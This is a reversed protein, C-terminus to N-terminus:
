FTRYILYDMVKLPLPLLQTQFFLNDSINRRVVVRSYHQLKQPQSRYSKHWEKFSPLALTPNQAYEQELMSNGTLFFVKFVEEVKDSDYYRLRSCENLLVPLYKNMLCNPTGKILFTLITALESGNNQDLNQLCRQWLLDIPWYINQLLLEACKTNHNRLACDLPTLKFDNSINADAKRTKLLVEVCYYNGKTCAIHLATNGGQEQLKQNIDIQTSELLSELDELKNNQVAFRLKEAPALANKIMGFLEDDM